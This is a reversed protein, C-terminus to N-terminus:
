AAVEFAEKISMDIVSINWGQEAHLWPGAHPCAHEKGVGPEGAQHDARRGEACSPRPRPFARM